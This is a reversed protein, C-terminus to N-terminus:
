YISYLIGGQFSLRYSDNNFGLANHTTTVTSIFATGNLRFQPSVYYSLGVFGFYGLFGRGQDVVGEKELNLGYSLRNQWRVRVRVTPMYTFDYGIYPNILHRHQIFSFFDGRFYSYGLGGYVKKQTYNNVMSYKNYVVDFLFDGATAWGSDLVYRGQRGVTFELTRGARFSQFANEFDYADKLHAFTKFDNPEVVGASAMYDLIAETERILQLRFDFFRQNKYTAVLDILGVLEDESPEKLLLGQERLMHLMRIVHVADGVYEIRGVGYGVKGEGFWAGTDTGQNTNQLEGNTRMSLIFFRNEKHFYRGEGFFSGGVDLLSGDIKSSRATLSLQSFYSSQWKRTNRVQGLSANGGFSMNSESIQQFGPYHDMQASFSPRLDLSSRRFDPRAYKNIDFSLTDQGYCVVAGLLLLFTFINKMNM